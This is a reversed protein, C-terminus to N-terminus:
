IKFGSESPSNEFAGAGDTEPEGKKQCLKIIKAM